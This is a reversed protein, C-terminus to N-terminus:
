NAIAASVAAHENRKGAEYSCWQNNSAAEANNVESSRIESLERDMDAVKEM